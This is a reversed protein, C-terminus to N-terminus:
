DFVMLFAVYKKHLTNTHPATACAFLRNLKKRKRKKNKKRELKIQRYDFFAAKHTEMKKEEPKQVQIVTDQFNLTHRPIVKSLLLSHHDYM